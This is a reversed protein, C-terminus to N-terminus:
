MHKLPKLHELYEDDTKSYDTFRYAYWASLFLCLPAQIALSKMNRYQLKYDFNAVAYYQKPRFYLPVGSGWRRYLRGVLTVMPGTILLGLCFHMLFHRRTDNMKYSDHIKRTRLAENMYFKTVNQGMFNDELQKIYELEQQRTPVPPIVDEYGMTFAQCSFQEGHVRRQYWRDRICM